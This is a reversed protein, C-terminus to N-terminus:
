DASLCCQWKLKDELWELHLAADSRCQAGVTRAPTQGQRGSPTHIDCDTCLFV